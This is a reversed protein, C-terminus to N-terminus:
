VTLSSFPAVHCTSACIPIMFMIRVVQRQLHIKRYNILNLYISYLSIATALLSSAIASVLVVRPLHAGSGADSSM